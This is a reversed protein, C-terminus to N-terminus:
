LEGRITLASYVLVVRVGTVQNGMGVDIGDSKIVGNREIRALALSRMDPSPNVTIFVNGPQLGEIRFSDDANAKVAPIGSFIPMGKITSRMSRYFSNINVQSLRSLIKPDSTGEIVAVGSISGGQRVKVEVGTVDGEGVDFIAPESILGDNRADTRVMLMYRGPAVVMLHFEGNSMSREGSESWGGTLKGDQTLGGVIFGEGSVPQGTDANVIRGYVNYPKKPDPVTIDIDTAESEETVEIVKAE